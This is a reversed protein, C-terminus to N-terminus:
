SFCSIFTTREDDTSCEYINNSHKLSCCKKACKYTMGKSNYIKDRLRIEDRAVKFVVRLM